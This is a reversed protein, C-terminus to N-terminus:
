YEEQGQLFLDRYQLAVDPEVGCVIAPIDNKKLTKVLNSWHRFFTVDGHAHIFIFDCSSVRELFDYLEEMEDDLVSSDASYLTIDYGEKRLCEAPTSLIFSGHAGIGLCAIKVM